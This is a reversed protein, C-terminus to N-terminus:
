SEHYHDGNNNFESWLLPTLDNLLKDREEKSITGTNFARIIRVEENKATM